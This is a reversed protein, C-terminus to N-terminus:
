ISWNRARQGNRVKLNIKRIVGSNRSWEILYEILARGIGLGWYAKRVTIGFEGIQATRERPGGSFNLCGIASADAKEAERLVIEINDIHTVKMEVGAMKM